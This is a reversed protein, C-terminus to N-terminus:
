PSAPPPCLLHAPSPSLFGTIAFPEGFNHYDRFSNWLAVLLFSGPFGIGVAQPICFWSQICIPQQGQSHERVSRRCYAEQKAFETVFRQKETYVQQSTAM